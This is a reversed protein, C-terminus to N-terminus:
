RSASGAAMRGIPSYGSAAPMEYGAQARTSLGTTRDRAKQRHLRVADALARDLYHRRGLRADKLLLAHDIRGARIHGVEEPLPMPMDKVGDIREEAMVSIEAMHFIL